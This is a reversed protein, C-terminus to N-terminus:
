KQRVLVNRSRMIGPPDVCVHTVGLQPWVQYYDRPEIQTGVYM